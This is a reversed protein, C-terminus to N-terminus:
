LGLDLGDGFTKAFYQGSAEFDMRMASRVGAVFAQFRQVLDSLVAKFSTWFFTAYEDIVIGLYRFKLIMTDIANVAAIGWDKLKPIANAVKVMFEDWAVSLQRSMFTAFESVVDKIYEWAVVVVDRVRAQKGYVELLTDRYYFLAGAASGVAV